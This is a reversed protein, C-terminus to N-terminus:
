VREFYNNGPFLYVGGGLVYGSRDSHEGKVPWKETEPFAQVVTERSVCVNDPHGQVQDGNEDMFFENFVLTELTSM